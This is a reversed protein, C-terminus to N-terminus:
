VNRFSASKLILVCYLEAFVSVFVRLSFASVRSCNWVFQAKVMKTLGNVPAAHVCGFPGKEIAYLSSGVHVYWCSSACMKPAFSSYPEDFVFM